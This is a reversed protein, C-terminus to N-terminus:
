RWSLLALDVLAVLMAILADFAINYTGILWAAGLGLAIAVVAVIGVAWERHGGSARRAAEATALGWLAGAFIGGFPAFSLAIGGGVGVAGGVLIARVLQRPKVVTYQSRAPKACVKCKYGVPTAVMDKPCIYRECEACRMETDVGPHFSCEPM